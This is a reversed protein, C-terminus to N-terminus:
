FNCIKPIFFKEDRNIAIINAELKPYKKTQVSKDTILSGDYFYKNILKCIKENM